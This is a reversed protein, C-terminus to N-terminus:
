ARVFLVRWDAAAAWIMVTATNSGLALNAAGEITEAGAPEITLANAGAGRRAIIYMREQAAALAPLNLTMAGAAPDGVFMFDDETLTHPTTTEFRGKIRLGGSVRLPGLAQEIWATGAARTYGTISQYEVFVNANTATAATSFMNGGRCRNSRFETTAFSTCFASELLIGIFSGGSTSGFFVNDEVRIEDTYDATGAGEQAGAIRIASTSSASIGLEQVTNGVISVRKGSNVEIVYGLTSQGSGYIQNDTIRVGDYFGNTAPTGLGITIAAVVNARGIMQNGDIVVNRQTAGSAPIVEFAGDKYTHVLNNRLTVDGAVAVRFASGLGGSFGVSRHNLSQNDVVMAGLLGVLHVAYRQTADFVNGRISALVPAAQNSQLFVGEGQSGATGVVTVFENGEIQIDKWAGSATRTGAIGRVLSTGRCGSVRLHEVTAGDKWWVAAHGNAAVGNGLFNLNRFEINTNTGVLQFGIQDGVGASDTWKLTAGQGEVILHSRNTVTINGSVYTGQPFYIAGVGVDNAAAQIFATDETIGDGTAGYSKVSVMADSQISHSDWIITGLYNAGAYYQGASLSTFRYAGDAGHIDGSTVTAILGTAPYATGKVPPAGFAGASYLRVEVNDRPLGDVTVLGSAQAM